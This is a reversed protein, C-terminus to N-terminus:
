DTKDDTEVLRQERWYWVAALSAAPGFMITHAAILCAAKPLSVKALGARKLDWVAQFAWITSSLFILNYDAQFITHLGKTIGSQGWDQPEVFVHIFSYLPDSSLSVISITFLHALLSVIYITKYLTALNSFGNTPSKSNSAQPTEAPNLKHLVFLFLNVLLPTPQWLFILLQTVKYEPDPDFLPWAFLLITPILFGM